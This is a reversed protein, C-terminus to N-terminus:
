VIRWDVGAEHFMIKSYSWSEEWRSWDIDKKLRIYVNKIGANIIMGACNSCIPLGYVFITSDNLAIGNRAANTICNSEAHQIFEYKMERNNLRCVSDVVGRSFGNFGQSIISNDKSVIVSGIRSSPDKSYNNAVFEAQNLYKTIWSETIEQKM